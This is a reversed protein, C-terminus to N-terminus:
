TIMFSYADGMNEHAVPFFLYWLLFDLIVNHNGSAAIRVKLESNESVLGYALMEKGNETVAYEALPNNRVILKYKNNEFEIISTNAYWKEPYMKLAMTETSDFIEINSKWFGTRRIEFIKGNITCIAKTAITNFHIEMKGIEKENIYFTYNFDVNKLWQKKMTKVNKYAFCVQWLFTKQKMLTVIEYYQFEKGCVM